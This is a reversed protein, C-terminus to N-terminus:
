VNMAFVERDAMGDMILVLCRGLVSTRDIIILRLIDVPMRRAVFLV